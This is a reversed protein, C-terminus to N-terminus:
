GIIELYAEAFRRGVELYSEATLHVADGLELDDTTIMRVYPLDVAAQQEKILNWNLAEENTATTAIQAFVVPLDPIGLDRRWAAVFEAFKEAWQDAPLINREINQKAYYDPDIADTEGQYFLMGEVTGMQAAQMIRRWCSGYLTKPDDDPVWNLLSTSGKACPILGIAWEPKAGLLTEAFSLAPSIGADRDESVMDVQGEASDVPEEALKWQYDNGFLYVQPNTHKLEEPVEGRGSMNSQGMLVFLKLKGRYEAPINEVGNAVPVPPKNATAETPLPTPRLAAPNCATILVLVITFLTNLRKFM